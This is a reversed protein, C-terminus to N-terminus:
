NQQAPWTTVGQIRGAAGADRSTYLSCDMNIPGPSEVIVAVPGLETNGPFPGGTATLAKNVDITTPVGAPISTNARFAGNYTQYNIAVTQANNSLISLYTQSANKPNSQVAGGTCSSVTKHVALARLMDAVSKEQATPIGLRTNTLSLASSASRLMAALSQEGATVTGLRALINSEATGVRSFTSSAIELLSGTPATVVWDSPEIVERLHENWIDGGATNTGCKIQGRILLRSGPSTVRLRAWLTLDSVAGVPYTFGSFITRDPSVPGFSSTKLTAGGDNILRVVGSQDSSGLNTIRTSFRCEDSGSQSTYEILPTDYTHQAPQIQATASTMAAGAYLAALCIALLSRRKM